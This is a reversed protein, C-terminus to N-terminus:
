FTSDSTAIKLVLRSIFLIYLFIIKDHTTKMMKRTTPTIIIEVLEVFTSLVFPHNAMTSHTSSITIIIM